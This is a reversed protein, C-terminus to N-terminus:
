LEASIAGAGASGSEPVDNVWNGVTLCALRRRRLGPSQVLPNHGVARFAVGFDFDVFEIDVLAVL